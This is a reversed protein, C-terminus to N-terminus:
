FLFIKFFLINKLWGFYRHLLEFLFTGINEMIFVDGKLPEM